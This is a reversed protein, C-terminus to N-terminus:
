LLLVDGAKTMSEVHVLGALEARNRPHAVDMELKALRCISPIKVTRKPRTPMSAIKTRHM